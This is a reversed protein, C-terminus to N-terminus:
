YTEWHVAPLVYRMLHWHHLADADQWAGLPNKADTLVWAKRNFADTAKTANEGEFVQYTPIELTSWASFLQRRMESNGIDHANVSRFTMPKKSPTCFFVMNLFKTVHQERSVRDHFTRCQPFVELMTALIARGTDSGLVGAYNAAVVGDDSVIKRLEKWFEVTYLHSPVGGGSFCDHIIVDYRPPTALTAQKQVWGRADAFHVSDPTRLGFYDRAYDYVVPDIEVITTNMGVRMFTNASVGIGLGVILASDKHGTEVLRAAEQLMFATYISDGTEGRTTPMDIWQGGLLSHDARLYRFGMGLHEAVVIRGTVSSKSALLRVENGSDTWPLQLSRFPYIQTALLLAVLPLIDPLLELLGDPTSEPQPKASKKKMKALYAPPPPPAALPFITNKAHAM